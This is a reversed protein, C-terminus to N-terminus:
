GRGYDKLKRTSLDKPGSFCGCFDKAQEHLSRRAKRALQQEILDRMVAAQSCGRTRALEKLLQIQRCEMKLTVTEM